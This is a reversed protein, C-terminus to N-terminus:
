QIFYILWKMKLFPIKIATILSVTRLVWTPFFSNNWIGFYYFRYKTVQVQLLFNLCTDM